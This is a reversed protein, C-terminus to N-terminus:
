KKDAWRIEEDDMQVYKMSHNENGFNHKELFM